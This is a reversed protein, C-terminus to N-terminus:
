PMVELKLSVNFYTVGGGAPTYQPPEMFRMEVTAGTRPHNWEFRLAGGELTSLYFADLTAVQAATLLTNCEIPRISSTFRRRVKAVGADMDTRISLQPPTESYGQVLVSQPLTVPWVPTTM